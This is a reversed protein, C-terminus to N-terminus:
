QDSAPRLSLGLLSALAPLRARVGAVRPYPAAFICPPDSSVPGPALSSTVVHPISRFQTVSLLTDDILLILRM